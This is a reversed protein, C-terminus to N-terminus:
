VGNEQMDKITTGTFKVGEFSECMTIKRCKYEGGGRGWRKTTKKSVTSLPKAIYPLLKYWQLQLM